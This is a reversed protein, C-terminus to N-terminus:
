ILRMTCGPRDERMNTEPIYQGGHVGFRGKSM